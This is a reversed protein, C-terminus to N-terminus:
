GNIFPSWGLAHALRLVVWIAAACLLDLGLGALVMRRVPLLGSSYVIANPPTSVPLASGFSAGFTVGFLPPLPDIEAQRCTALIVPLLTSAAAANGTIESLLIGAAVAVATIMWLDRTGLADFVGQGVVEALGTRFMLGGLALGSGFLLIIGWDIQRLDAPELAFQRRRWSVPMLFLLVPALLAAVEEPCRRSFEREAEPSAVMALVGPTMWLGVVILFVVLTGVEGAKWRGLRDYEGRLYGRLAPMDLGSAPAQLRLWLYLGIFIVLMLPVGVLSWRLFDVPRGFFEPRQFYGMAV